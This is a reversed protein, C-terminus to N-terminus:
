ADPALLAQRLRGPEAEHEYPMSAVFADVTFAPDLELLRTRVEARRTGGTSALRYALDRLRPRTIRDLAECADSLRGAHFLSRGLHFWYSDSHYPNLRMAKRVWREAEQARRLAEVTQNVQHGVDVVEAPADSSLEIPTGEVANRTAAMEYPHYFIKSGLMELELGLRKIEAQRWERHKRWGAPVVVAGLLLCLILFYRVPLKM